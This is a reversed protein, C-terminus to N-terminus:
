RKRALRAPALACVCNPHFSPQKGYNEGDYIYEHDIPVVGEDVFAKCIDCPDGPVIEKGDVGLDNMRDISAQSLADNTETRAITRARGPSMEDTRKWDKFKDQIDKKLGPIGRKNEIGDSIIRALQSKTEDGMKTVLKACHKEAYAIARRIPPGEYAQELGASRGWAVVQSDGSLYITLVYGNVRQLLETEFHRLLPYIFDEAEGGKAETVYKSYLGDIKHYPFADALQGFYDAFIKQLRKVHRLNQPADVSAPVKAELIGIISELLESMQKTTM